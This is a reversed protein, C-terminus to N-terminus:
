NALSQFDDNKSCKQLHPWIQAIKQVRESWFEKKMEKGMVLIKAFSTIPLSIFFFEKPFHDLFIAWISTLWLMAFKRYSWFNSGVTPMNQWRNAFWASKGVTPLIHWGYTFGSRRSPNGRMMPSYISGRPEHLPLASGFVCKGVRSYLRVAARCATPM